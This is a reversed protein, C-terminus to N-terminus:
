GASFAFRSIAPTMSRSNIRATALVTPVRHARQLKLGSRETIWRTVLEKPVDGTRRLGDLNRLEGLMQTKVVIRDALM